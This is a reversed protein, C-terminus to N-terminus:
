RLVGGFVNSWGIGAVVLLAALAVLCAGLSTGLVFRAFELNPDEDDPDENSSLWRASDTCEPPPSANTM